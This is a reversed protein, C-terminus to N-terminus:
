CVLVLSDISPLLVQCVRNASFGETRVYLRLFIAFGARHHPSPVFLMRRERPSRRSRNAAVIHERELKLSPNRALFM